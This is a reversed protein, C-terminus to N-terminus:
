KSNLKYRPAITVKMEKEYRLERRLFRVPTLPKYHIIEEFPLEANRDLFQPFRGRAEM